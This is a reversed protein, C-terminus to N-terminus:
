PSPSSAIGPGGAADLEGFLYRTNALLTPGLAAPEVGRVECLREFTWRVFAPENRKGRRQQPALFPADTEVLLREAPARRAAERLEDNRPYTLPGAFSLHLGLDLCAEADAVGGTFCHLIGRVPARPRLFDVLEAFADRCHLIIPKGCDEALALHAGLSALQVELPVRDRYLDLGTEGVAVVEPARCLEAIAGMDRAHDACDNPHLGATPRLAARGRAREVARRSSALDIGVDVLAVLGAERARALVDDLEGELSDWGLHCHTDVLPPLDM